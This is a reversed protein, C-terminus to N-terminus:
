FKENFLGDSQINITATNTVAIVYAIFVYIMGVLGRVAPVVWVVQVLAAQRVLYVVVM